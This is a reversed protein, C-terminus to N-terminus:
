KKLKSNACELQSSLESCRQELKVINQIMLAIKGKDTPNLDKIFLLDGKTLASPAENAPPKSIESIRSSSRPRQFDQITSNPSPGPRPTPIVEWCIQDVNM